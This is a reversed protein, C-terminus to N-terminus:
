LYRGLFKKVPKGSEVCVQGGRIVNEMINQAREWEKEYGAKKAAEKASLYSLPRKELDHADTGICHVFGRKLLTFAFNKSRKRCFSDANVQLLCGMEILRTVLSPNKLVEAYREIHAIIPTYETDHIFDALADLLIGTWKTTFPLELLIYSTGEIALTCLAEFDPTNVGTFHVEAGLRTEIEEPVSEKIEDFARQRRQLFRAPSAKGYYHPTLVLCDIGEAKARELMALSTQLGDAGDDIKPLIHTHIDVM